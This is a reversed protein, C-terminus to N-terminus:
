AYGEGPPALQIFQDVAQGTTAIKDNVTEFIVESTAFEGDMDFYNTASVIYFLANTNTEPLHYFKYLDSLTLEYNDSYGTISSSASQQTFESNGAYPEFITSMTNNDFYFNLATGSTYQKTLFM